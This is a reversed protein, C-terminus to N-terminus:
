EKESKLRIPGMALLQNEFEGLTEAFEVGM